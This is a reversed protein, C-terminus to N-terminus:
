LVQNSRCVDAYWLASAKPTRVQTDYDVHVIGFRQTYGWAWEFNDLLSWAFYGHVDVGQDIAGAVARLHADYYEVRRQDHVGGDSGDSGDSGDPGDDYAAGNETIYLPPLAEGYDDRMRVLLQEFGPATVPWGIDTHPRDVVAAVAEPASVHPTARETGIETDGGAGGEGGAGSDSRLTYFHDNYYNVGLWDLEQGITGEDGDLVCRAWPGLDDLVDAPYRGLLLSDLWWRNLTGDIRRRADDGLADDVHVPAPNIVTGISLDAHLSRMALVAHGHALLQHHAVAVAARPDRMGPAHDGSAHGLYAYCWPENLTAWRKVEDGFESVMLAAYEAFWWASERERFGGRDELAQPLDWHFLTPVPEIDHALLLEILEHYQRLGSASPAGVGEPLVRAWAFSFRYAGLGLDAMLKVDDAMLRLHDCAVDGHDGNVVKGPQRCFTDWVNAGRGARDGEIQYSSTAAGWTFGRPFRVAESM